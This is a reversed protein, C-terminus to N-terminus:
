THGTEPTLEFSHFPHVTLRISDPLRPLSQALLKRRYGNNRAIPLAGRILQRQVSMLGLRFISVIRKGAHGSRKNLHRPYLNIDSRDELAAGEALAYLTAVALVLWHRAVRTVDSRRSRECQWGMSKLARFGAEIWARLSYWCADVKNPALDTLVLCPQEKGPAWLAALTAQLQREQKKFAIGRGVWAEGVSLLRMAKGPKGQCPEFHIGNQVRMMPHWGLALISNYLRPSWLGRDALVIFEVDSKIYTTSPTKLGEHLHGLLEQIPEIWAEKTNGQLIRWAVPVACGRYLVSIVLATFRERITTADIALFVPECPRDSAKSGLGLWSLAWTLLFPFCAEVEVQSQCARSKKEGDRSWEKLRQRLRNWEDNDLRPKSNDSCALTLATLVANQCANGALLTGYVWLALGDAQASSLCSLRASLEQEIQYLPKPLLSVETFSPKTVEIKVM